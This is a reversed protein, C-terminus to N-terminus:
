GPEEGPEDPAGPEARWPQAKGSAIAADAAKRTLRVPDPSAEHYMLRGPHTMDIWRGTFVVELGDESKSVSETM